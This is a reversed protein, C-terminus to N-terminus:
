KKFKAIVFRRESKNIYTYYLYDDSSYFYSAGIKTKNQNLQRIYDNVKLRVNNFEPRKIIDMDPLSLASRFFRTYTISKEPYIFVAGLPFLPIIIPFQTVEELIYSGLCLEIASDNLTEVDMSVTGESIQKLVRESNEPLSIPNNMNEFHDKELLPGAMLDMTDGVSYNYSRVLSNDNLDCVSLNFVDNNITLDFLYNEYIVACYNKYRAVINNMFLTDYATSNNWNLTIVKSYHTDNILRNESGNLLIRFYEKDTYIKGKLHTHYFTKLSKDKLHVINYQKFTKHLNLEELTFEKKVFVNENVIKTLYLRDPKKTVSLLYFDQEDDIITELKERKRTLPKMYKVEEYRPNDKYIIHSIFSTESTVHRNFFIFQNENSLSGVFFQEVNTNEHIKTSFIEQNDASLLLFFYDKEKIFGYCTNGDEDTVSSIHLANKIPIEYEQIEDQSFCYNFINILIILKILKM